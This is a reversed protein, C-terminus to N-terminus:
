FMLTLQAHYKLIVYTIALLKVYIKKMMPTLDQLYLIAVTNAFSQFNEM